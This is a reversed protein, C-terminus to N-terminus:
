NKLLCNWIFTFHVHLCISESTLSVTQKDYWNCCKTLTVIGDSCTAVSSHAFWWKPNKVCHLERREGHKMYKVGVSVLEHRADTDVSCYTVKCTPVDSWKGNSYCEVKEEGVLSYFSNCQYKLFMTGIGVIDGNPVNPPKGCINITTKQPEFDRESGSSTSSRCTPGDTWTGSICIISKMTRGGEMTYGDECQYQVESNVPFLEQYEEDIIVAHPVKPPKGCTHLSKCTPGDTWTGSICIISKMADGGEMTYGDECQYQVKSDVPFQEQHEEHIIVAHPVKPPKGCTHLSKCTPVDTWNGSMCIISKMADGGEMIYGDKCGYQVESDVPFLEQYEQYIIVAHPVKPPEGCTHLSKECMPLFSWTGNECKATAAQNKLEYGKDCKVRITGKDYWGSQTGKYIAHPINPPFCLNEDICQPKPSWVGNECTSTAWWGETAPKRGDNCAYSLSTEHSYSEQDPVFYGELKPPSCPQAASQAHLVGHKMYKVGVSVLEHRADTDVSCYTVKCTPVDSWKGNSYCEVNEEGVLSYFSNCQYKLFMTGIGVIDGNPVNPPKGCINITTKQPEFDRESGSSTSSRCTPGDTWTGSICIISKMADGGEMTYGDECEYQVESDVPFLEQYEEHIIVAHPVKPPEGCTHLSKECTPVPFWTGNICRATATQNRLEFGKDCKIRIREGGTFWEKQTGVYKGDPVNPPICDNADICQPQHSWKGNDCTVTAWWGRVTLKRGDNCTYSLKSEHSYVEQKPAFFGGDLSPARCSQAADQARLRGPAWILLVFGLYRICM